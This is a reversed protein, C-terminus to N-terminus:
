IHTQTYIYFYLSVSKGSETPTTLSRSTRGRGFSRPTPFGLWGASWDCLIGRLLARTRCSRLSRLHRTCRKLQVPPLPKTGSSCRSFLFHARNRAAKHKGAVILELNFSNQGARNSAICTYIGADRSTVPEIVLSHVGNERVLMKHASDPRITQGNLQWILDPTPLGSVQLLILFFRSFGWRVQEVLLWSQATQTFIIQKHGPLASGLRRCHKTMPIFHFSSFGTQEQATSVWCGTQQLRGVQFSHWQWSSVTCTWIHQLIWLFRLFVVFLCAIQFHTWVHETTLENGPHFSRLAM